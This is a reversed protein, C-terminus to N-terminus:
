PVRSLTGKKHMELTYLNDNLKAACVRQLASNMICLASHITDAVGIIEIMESPFVIMKCEANRRYAPLCDNHNDAKTLLDDIQVGEYPGAGEVARVGAGEYPGIGVDARHVRRYILPPSTPM